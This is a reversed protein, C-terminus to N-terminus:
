DKWSPAALLMYLTLALSKAGTTLLEIVAYEGATHAQGATCAGMGMTPIGLRRALHTADFWAFIPKAEVNRGEIESAAALAIIVLLLGTLRERFKM